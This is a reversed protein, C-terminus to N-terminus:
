KVETLTGCNINGLDEVIEARSLYTLLEHTLGTIIYRNSDDSLILGIYTLLRGM